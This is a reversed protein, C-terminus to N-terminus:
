TANQFSTQLDSLSFSAIIDLNITMFVTAIAIHDLVM